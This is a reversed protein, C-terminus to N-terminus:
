VIHLKKFLRGWPKMRLLSCWLISLILGVITYVIWWGNESSYIPYYSLVNTISLEEKNILMQLIIVIKFFVFHWIVIDLSNKGLFEFGEGILNLPKFKTKEMFKSIYIVVYSAMFSCIVFLIPNSYINKGMNVINWNGTIIFIILCIIMVIFTDYRKLKDMYRKSLAGAAFFFSLILTRSLLYPLTIIFGVGAAVLFFVFIIIPKYKNEPIRLDIFKYLLSVVFLAGLFWTAGFFQGDKALTLFIKVIFKSYTGVDGTAIINIVSALVNWFVFPIYLSKIKKVSYEKFNDRSNYLLGSILFFLPMHFKNIYSSFPASAHAYVVMFIGIGKAIDFYKLRLKQPILKEKELAM